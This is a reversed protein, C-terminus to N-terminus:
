LTVKQGRSLGLPTLATLLEPSPEDEDLCIPQLFSAVRVMVETPSDLELPKRWFGSDALASAFTGSNVSKAAM